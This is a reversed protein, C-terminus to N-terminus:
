GQREAKQKMMLATANRRRIIVSLPSYDSVTEKTSAVLSVRVSLANLKERLDRVTLGMNFLEKNQEERDALVLGAFEEISLEHDPKERGSSKLYKDVNSEITKKEPEVVPAPEVAKVPEPEVTKEPESELEPSAITRYEAEEDKELATREEDSLTVGKQRASRVLGGEEVQVPKLDFYALIDDKNEPIELKGKLLNEIFKASPQFKMGKVAEQLASPNAPVACGSLELLEQRIYRRPTWWTSPEDEGPKMEEWDLPIFGVSSANIFKGKFLEFILDALPFLGEEPFTEEFVMRRPSRKKWVMTAKGIPISGYDHAWLFVPNNLFNDLVWGNVMVIDGQRDKTEDTGIITLTRKKEDVKKLVGIRDTGYLDKGNHKIPQGAANKLLYSM